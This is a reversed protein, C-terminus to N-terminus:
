VPSRGQRTPLTLPFIEALAHALLKLPHLFYHPTVSRSDALQYYARLWSAPPALLRLLCLLKERRRGMVLLDPLLRALVPLFYFGAFPRPIPGFSLVEREPLYREHWWRRFADPRLAALMVAPAHVGLASGLICLSYFVPIQLAEARVTAVIRAWDLTAGHDRVIFALDSLWNLRAYSHYHAHACLQPLQDELSLAKVTAGGITVPVARRWYGDLERATLGCNFPDDIHLEVLLQRDPHWYKLEHVTLQPVLRPPLGALDIEAEFGQALLAGHAAAVDRERVLLDLDGFTRLASEPYILQALAPGKLAIPDLGVEVLGALTAGVARCQVALRLANLSQARAVARRFSEPPAGPTEEGDQRALYRQTLGLLGNRCVGLLVEDWDAAVTPLPRDLDGAAFHCLLTRSAASLPVGEFGELAALQRLAITLEESDRPHDIMYGM